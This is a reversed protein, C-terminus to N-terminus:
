AASPDAILALQELPVDPDALRRDDISVRGRILQQIPESVDWVGVNMGAM